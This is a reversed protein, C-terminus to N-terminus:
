HTQIPVIEDRFAILSLIVIQDAIMTAILAMITVFFNFCKDALLPDIM